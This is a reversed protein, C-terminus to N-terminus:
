NKFQYAELSNLSKSLGNNKKSFKFADKQKSKWTNDTGNNHTANVTKKRKQLMQMVHFFM